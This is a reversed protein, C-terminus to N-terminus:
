EDVARETGCELCVVWGDGTVPDRYDLLDTGRCAPCRDTM